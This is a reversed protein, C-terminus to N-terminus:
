NSKEVAAKIDELDKQLAKQTASKFLFGTALSVIKATLSQAQGEFAMTLYTRGEQEEIQLRSVYVAGRSEARTQYYDNEKVDTIWMVERATKRFMTRTERWKLGILGSAPRELIEIREIAEITRESGEIDTIVQWVKEKTADICVQARVEMETEGRM